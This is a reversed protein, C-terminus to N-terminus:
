KVKPEAAPRAAIAARADAVCRAGDAVEEDDTCPLGEAHRCVHRRATATTDQPTPASCLKRAKAVLDLLADHLGQAESTLKGAEDCPLPLHADIVVHM